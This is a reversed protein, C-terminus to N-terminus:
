VTVHINKIDRLWAKNHLHLGTQDRHLSDMIALALLHSGEELFYDPVAGSNMARKLKELALPKLQDLLDQIHGEAEKLKDDKSLIPTSM